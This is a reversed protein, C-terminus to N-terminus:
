REGGKVDPSASAFLERRASEWAEDDLHDGFAPVWEGGDPSVWGAAPAMRTMMWARSAEQWAAAAAGHLLNRVGDRVDSPWIRLTWVPREASGILIGPDRTVRRNVEVVEGALPMPQALRRGRRSVLTWAPEGQRLVQGVAALEIRATEGAFQLAFDDSGVEATGDRRLRAWAHGPHLLLEPSGAGSSAADPSGSAPLIGPSPAATVARRRRLTWDALIVGAFTLVVLTIVM